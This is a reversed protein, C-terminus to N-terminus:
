EVISRRYYEPVNCRSSLPLSKFRLCEKEPTGYGPAKRRSWEWIPVLVRDYYEKCAIEDILSGISDYNHLVFSLSSMVPLRVVLLLGEPPVLM